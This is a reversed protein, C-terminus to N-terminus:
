LKFIKALDPLGKNKLKEELEKYETKEDPERHRLMTEREKKIRDKIKKYKELLSQNNKIENDLRKKMSALRNINLRHEEHELKIQGISTQLEVLENMSTKINENIENLRGEYEKIENELRSKKEINRKYRENSNDLLTMLDKEFETIKARLVESEVKLEKNQNRKEVSKRDLNLLDSKLLEKQENITQLLEDFSDIESYRLELLRETEDLATVKELLLRDKEEIDKEKKQVVQELVNRKKNIETLEKSYQQFMNAFRNELSQNTQQIEVKREELLPIIENLKKQEAKLTEIKDEEEQVRSGTKNMQNEYGASEEQLKTISNKLGVAKENLGALQSTKSEISQVIALLEKQKFSIEDSLERAKVGTENLLNTKTNYDKELSAFEIERTSIKDKLESIINRKMQETQNLEEIRHKLESEKETLLDISHKIEENLGPSGDLNKSKMQIQNQVQKEEAKLMRIRKKFKIMVRQKEDELANITMDLESMRNQKKEISELLKQEEVVLSLIKDESEKNNLANSKAQEHEIEELERIKVSIRDQIATEENSLNKLRQQIDEVTKNEDIKLQTIRQKIKLLETKAEEIEGSEVRNIKNKKQIIISQLNQEQNNLGAIKQNLATVKAELIKSENTLEELKLEAAKLEEDIISARTNNQGPKINEKQIGPQLDQIQSTLSLLQNQEDSKMERLRDIQKILNEVEERSQDKDSKLQEVASQIGAKESSLQSIELRIRQLVEELQKVKDEKEQIRQLTSRLEENEIQLDKIKKSDLLAM